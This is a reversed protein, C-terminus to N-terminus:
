REAKDNATEAFTAEFQDIVSHALSADLTFQLEYCQEGFATRWHRGTDTYKELQAICNMAVDLLALDGQVVFQNIGNRAVDLLFFPTEHENSNSNLRLVSM